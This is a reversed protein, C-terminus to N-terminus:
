RRPAPSSRTPVNRRATIVFRLSKLDAPKAANLIYSFFTPTSFLLTPQYAAIKKVLGASDTPDAHHVVRVGGVLPLVLNASLGFSHFPPLFGLLVDGRKFGLASAGARVDAMINAHTLPVAKPAKESGSTFLIVATDEPKIPPLSALVGGSFFKIGLLTMLAEVKGIDRRVDELYVYEVGEIKVGARDIFKKSTVVRQIGM